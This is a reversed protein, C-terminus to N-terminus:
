RVDARVVRLLRQDLSPDFLLLALPAGAPRQAVAQRLGAITDVPRRNVHLLIQGRELGAEAAPSVPEVRQILLGTMGAPVDYRSANGAHVEILTLGLESSPAPLRSAAEGAPSPAERPPRAALKLTATLRRGERLFDVRTAQGPVGRSVVRITADDSAVPTGDIATIIDYPRLGAHAAPSGATVDEVLAGDIEGLGLAQQVDADVDRLAVGLYGRAVRGTTLLQPLVERVQNVPISFGINSAQRSVATNIGVVEGATNLLPGGSNGFSIAADTQIYHDLSQDFLKRGVFSVVGVTVTHEYAFPNGIACVWEGVRVRDSDGLPVQPLPTGAEVKLVAVDLDADAGLITAKFTRGDALKVMVREAGDVVHENTVIVGAPDIIFGTGTGRRPTEPRRFGFGGEGPPAGSSPRRRSRSAVDISVVAPNAREAVDAFSAPFGAAPPAASRLIPLSAPAAPAVAVPASVATSPAFSGALIAGVLVGVTATLAATLAAFGRTM